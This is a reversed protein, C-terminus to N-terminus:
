FKFIEQLKAGLEPGRLNVAIVEGKPNILFNAPISTINFAKAPASQWFQLDSVHQWEGLKDAAIAEVWREKEKDLSVQFIEFGKIKYKKYNEVLNPNEQRCPRCWGAWFDLLVYKGRLANLSLIKGDPDSLSIDPLVDGIGYSKSTNQQASQNRSRTIFSHLAQVDPSQPYKKYLAADVKDFYVMDQPVTFVNLRGPVIHQSLAMLSTMSNPHTEVFKKSFEKQNEVVQNFKKDIVVKISDLSESNLSAEYLKGLSDKDAQTKEMQDVLQQVLLMDASGEAKYSNTFNDANATINIINASDVLVTIYDTPSIRLLYFKPFSTKGKLRFQGNDKLTVSDINIIGSEKIESLFITKGKANQITGKVLFENDGMQNCSITLVITIAALILKTM